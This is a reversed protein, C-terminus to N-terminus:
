LTKIEKEKEAVLNDIRKIHEDTVKQMDTQAIHFEDESIEKNKELKKIADIAARRLNRISIKSQEGYEKAKKAIELRRDTSLPPIPIRINNGEVIPSLGLNAAVIAKEVAKTNNGDWVQVGLMAAGQVSISAIQNLPMYSGYVEINITELLTTSARGTRLGSLHHSCAKISKSMKDILEEKISDIM